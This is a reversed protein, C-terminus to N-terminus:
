CKTSQSKKALIANINSPTEDARIVQQQQKKVQEKQRAFTIATELTLNLELQLKESLTSDRLGVVIRDRIVYIVM